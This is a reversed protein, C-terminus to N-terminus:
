IEIPYPALEYVTMPYLDGSCLLEWFGWKRLRFSRDVIVGHRYFMFGHLKRAAYPKRSHRISRHVAMKTVHSSTVV